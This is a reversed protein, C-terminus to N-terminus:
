AEQDNKNGVQIIYRIKSQSENYVIYENHQLQYYNNRTQDAPVPTDITPGTPVQVGNPLVLSLAFDPGRRGVGKTSDFGDPPREMYTPERIANMKGLAVESLIMFAPEKNGARCYGFSKGFM